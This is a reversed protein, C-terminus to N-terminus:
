HLKNLIKIRDEQTFFRNDSIIYNTYYIIYNNELDKSIKVVKVEGCEQLIINDNVKITIEIESSDKIAIPYWENKTPIEVLHCIKMGERYDDDLRMGM